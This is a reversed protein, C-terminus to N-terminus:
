DDGSNLDITIYGFAETNFLRNFKAVQRRATQETCWSTRTYAFPLGVVTKDTRLQAIQNEYTLQYLQPVVQAVIEFGTRPNMTNTVIRHQPRAM